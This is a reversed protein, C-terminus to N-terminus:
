KKDMIRAQNVGSVGLRWLFLCGISGGEMEALIRREKYMVHVGNNEGEVRWSVVICQDM